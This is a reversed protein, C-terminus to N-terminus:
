SAARTPHNSDTRSPPLWYRVASATDIYRRKKTWGNLRLATGLDSGRVGPFLTTLEDYHYCEKRDADHLNRWWLSIKDALPLNGKLQNALHQERLKEPATAALLRAVEQQLRGGPQNKENM